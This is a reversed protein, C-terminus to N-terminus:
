QLLLHPLSERFGSSNMAVWSAYEQLEEINKCGSYSLGSKIGAVLRKIVAAVPGKSEVKTSVGEPAEPDNGYFEQQAESSAMGRYVKYTKDGDVFSEGPAEDTGAFLSGCMVTNAGAALAKVIDGSNRIGGDAVVTRNYQSATLACAAIALLQPMGHGTVIRTTCLSGPGVGVKIVDAGSECLYKAGDPTAVNGAVYEVPLGDKSVLACAKLQQVIDGVLKHHGHAVDIVVVSCGADVLRKVHEVIGNKVGVAASILPVQKWIEFHNDHFKKVQNVQDDYSMYRHIVGMGGEFQMASAMHADCVSDMNAAVLPYKIQRLPTAWTLLDITSRTEIESYQPELLVDDFTSAIEKQACNKLFSRASDLKSAKYPV